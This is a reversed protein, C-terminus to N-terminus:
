PVPQTNRWAVSFLTVTLPLRCCLQIGSVYSASCYFSRLRGRFLLTIQVLHLLAWDVHQVYLMDFWKELICSSSDCECLSLCMLCHNLWLPFNEKLACLAHTNHQIVLNLFLLATRCLHSSDQTTEKKQYNCLKLGRARGRELIIASYVSLGREAWTDQQLTNRGIAFPIVRSKWQTCLKEKRWMGLGYAPGVTLRLFTYGKTWHHGQGLPCKLINVKLWAETSFLDM